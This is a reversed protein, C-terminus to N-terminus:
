STSRRSSPRRSFPKPSPISAARMPFTTGCFSASSTACITSRHTSSSGEGWVRLCNVGGSMLLDIYASVSRADRAHALLRSAALKRGEGMAEPRKSRLLFRQWQPESSRAASSSTVSAASRAPKSFFRPGRRIRLGVQYLHPSGLEKPWWLEARALEHELTVHHNRRRAVSGLDRGSQWRRADRHHGCGRRRGARAGRRDRRSDNGQWGRPAKGNVYLDSAWVGDSFELRIPDVIGRDPNERGLGMRLEDPEQPCLAEGLSRELERATPRRTEGTAPMPAEFAIALVNEGARLRGTVDVMASSVPERATRYARWQPVAGCVHRAVRLRPSGSEHIRRRHDSIVNSLGLRSRRDMARRQHQRRLVSRRDSGGRSSGARRPRAGDRPALGRPQTMPNCARRARDEGGRHECDLLTWRQSASGLDRLQTM